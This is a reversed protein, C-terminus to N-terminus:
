DNVSWRYSIRVQRDKQLRGQMFRADDEVVEFELRHSTPRYLTSGFLELGFMWTRIPPFDTSLNQRKREAFEGLRVGLKGTAFLRFKGLTIQARAGYFLNALTFARRHTRIEFPALEVRGIEGIYLGRHYHGNGITMLTLVAALPGKDGGAEIICPLLSTTYADNRWSIAEMEVYDGQTYRRSIRALAAGGQVAKHIKGSKNFFQLHFPLFSYHQSYILSVQPSENNGALQFDLGRGFGDDDTARASRFVSLFFREGGSYLDVYSPRYAAGRQWRQFNEALATAREETAVNQSAAFAKTEYEQLDIIAAESQGEARAQEIKRNLEINFNQLRREGARDIKPSIATMTAAPTQRLRESEQDRARKAQEQLDEFLQREAPSLLKLGGREERVTAMFARIALSDSATATAIASATSDPAPYLPMAELYWQVLDFPPDLRLTDLVTQIGAAQAVQDPSITYSGLSKGTSFDVDVFSQYILESCVIADLTNVDFKFDYPKGYQLLALALFRALNKRYQEASMEDQRLRIAAFDDVYLFHAFRHLTVGGDHASLTQGDRLAELVNEREHKLRYLAEFLLPNLPQGNYTKEFTRRRMIALRVWEEKEQIVAIEAAYAEVGAEITEAAMGNTAQKMLETNFVGLEQLADYSELYIAVHGFYGPILKDTIAFRTKDFLLDGSRLRSAMAAVKEPHVGNEKGAPHPYYRHFAPLAHGRSEGIGLFDALYFLNSGVLNGFFKSFNYFTRATLAVAPDLVAGLAAVSNAWLVSVDSQGAIKQLTPDGLLATASHYLEPEEAKITELFNQRSQLQLYRSRTRRNRAPDFFAANIEEFIGYQIGFSRNGENLRDRITVSNGIAARLSEAMVYLARDTELLSALLQLQGIAAARDDSPGRSGGGPEDPPRKREAERRDSDTLLTQYSRNLAALRLAWQVQQAGTLRGTGRAKWAKIEAVLRALSDEAARVVQQISDTETLSNSFQAYLPFALSIMAFFCAVACLRSLYKHLNRTKTVGKRRHPMTNESIM